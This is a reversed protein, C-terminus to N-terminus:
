RHGALRSSPVQPAFNGDCSGSMEGAWWGVPSVSLSCELAWESTREALKTGHSDSIEMTGVLGGRISCLVFYGRRIHETCQVYHEM